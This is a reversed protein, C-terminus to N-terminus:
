QVMPAQALHVSLFHTDLFVMTIYLIMPLIHHIDILTNILPTGGFLKFNLNEM